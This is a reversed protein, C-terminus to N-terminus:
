HVNRIGVVLVGITQLDKKVPVSIQVSNSLTSEDFELPGVFVKGDGNNYCATFKEEDGQWYDSTKPYEGVVAGQEDCLFMETFLEPRSLVKKQLLKGVFNNQLSLAFDEKEGAIWQRDIAKIENLSLGKSNQQEVAEILSPEASFEQLMKSYEDLTAKTTSTIEGSIGLVYSPDQRTIQTAFSEDAFKEINIAKKLIGGEIALDMIQRIGAKDINLNRYNIVNLDMRLSQVIAQFNHEPIHKRVMNAIATIEPGGLKGTGADAMRAAEIDLGAKHVYHIVEKLAEKKNEICDDTAIIICEVHGNPWPMVDKSYWAVHGFNQTEVVDAWPLSQEFSAPEGFSNKRKIFAPSKPPSVEVAIVDKDRGKGIGLSRGHDKLYKYLVVTHTSQLHPVGCEVPHGFKNKMKVLARAVKADPKREQRHSSLHTETNLLSNIALASGDRHAIGVWRFNPKERFMHMAQPCIIYAMDVEGSMFYARLMPWSKMREIQYNAHKMQDRYKEYAVIGAYHDALPIYIAKITQRDGKDSGQNKRSSENQQRGSATFVLSTGAVILCLLWCKLVKRM